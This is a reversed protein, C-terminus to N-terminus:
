EESGGRECYLTNDLLGRGVLARLHEKNVLSRHSTAMLFVVFLELALPLCFSSSM